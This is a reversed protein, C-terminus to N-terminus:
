ADAGYELATAGGNVKLIQGATGIASPTDTLEHISMETPNAAVQQAVTVNSPAAPVSAVVVLTVGPTGDIDYAIEIVDGKTLRARGDNFYGATLVQSLTDNTGYVYRSAVANEGMRMQAMRNLAKSNYAM